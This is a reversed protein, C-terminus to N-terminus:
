HANARKRESQLRLVRSISYIMHFVNLYNLYQLDLATAKIFFDKSHQKVFLLNVTKRIPNTAM